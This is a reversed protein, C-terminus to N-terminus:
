HYLAKLAGWTGAGTPTAAPAVARTYSFAGGSVSQWSDFVVDIYIDEAILHVVANVGVTGPPGGYNAAWTEWDTFSLGAWNVADGTAWQTNMPSLYHTYGTESYANYIGQLSGRTIWTTATIRDQNVALAPNANSAKSFTYTRGSWVQSAAQAAGAVLTAGLAALLVLSRFPHRPHM